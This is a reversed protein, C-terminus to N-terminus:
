TAWWQYSRHSRMVQRLGFFLRSASGSNKFVSYMPSQRMFVFALRCFIYRISLKRALLLLIYQGQWAVRGVMIISYIPRPHVGLRRPSSRAILISSNMLDINCRRISEVSAPFQVDRIRFFKTHKDPYFPWFKFWSLAAIFHRRTFYIKAGYSGSIAVRALTFKIDRYTKYHQYRCFYRHRMSCIFVFCSQFIYHSDQKKECKRRCRDAFITLEWQTGMRDNNSTASRNCRLFTLHGCFLHIQM